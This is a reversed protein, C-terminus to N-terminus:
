NGGLLLPTLTLGKYGNSGRGTFFTTPVGFAAESIQRYLLSQIVRLPPHHRETGVAGSETGPNAKLPGLLHRRIPSRLNGVKM